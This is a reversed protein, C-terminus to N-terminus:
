FPLSDRIDRRRDASYRFMGSIGGIMEAVIQVYGGASTNRM